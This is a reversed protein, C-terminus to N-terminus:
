GGATRQVASRAEAVRRDSFTSWVVPILLAAAAAGLWFPATLGFRAAILGGLLAGPAALGKDLVTFASQVRGRLREPTLEQRLSTLLVGWVVAHAGFVVFVAGAVLPSRTLAMAAPVAAEIVIALRLVREEGLRAIVRAAVLSGILGGAGYTAVFLGYTAAHLGLREEAYLVTIANQAVVTIDLIGLTLALTRLLRHQWLWRVGEVIETGLGSAPTEGRTVRFSGSLTLLLLGSAALGAAGLLFPLAIAAAFLIGALPRAIFQSTVTLTGALRANARPLQEPPVVAPLAAFASTDFLTEGTGLLFFVAYLLSLRAQGLVLALGLLGLLAASGLAVAVMGRLRDIRDALAGSPLGFLIWPLRQAFALGAVLAPNRTLAAALLPAAVFTMGDSLASAASSAWLRGFQPGLRGTVREPLTMGM